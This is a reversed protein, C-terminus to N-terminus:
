RSRAHGGIRNGVDQRGDVQAGVTEVHDHRAIDVALDDDHIAQAFHHAQARADLFVAADVLVHGRAGEGAQLAEALPQAVHVGVAHAHDAGIGQAACPALLGEQLAGALREPWGM